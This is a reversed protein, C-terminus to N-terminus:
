FLFIYLSIVDSDDEPQATRRKVRRDDKKPIVVQLKVAIFIFCIFWTLAYLM